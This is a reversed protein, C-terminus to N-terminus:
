TGKIQKIFRMQFEQNREVTERSQGGARWETLLLRLNDSTLYGATFKLGWTELTSPGSGFETPLLYDQVCCVRLVDKMEKRHMADAMTEKADTKKEGVEVALAGPRGSTADAMKENATMTNEGVEVALAEPRRGVSDRQENASYAPPPLSQQVDNADTNGRLSRPRRKDLVRKSISSRCDRLLEM